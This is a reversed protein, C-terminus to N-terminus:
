INYPSKYGRRQRIFFHNIVGGQRRIFYILVARV